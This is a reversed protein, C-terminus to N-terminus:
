AERRVSRQFSLYAFWIGGVALALTIAVSLPLPLATATGFALSRTADILYTTPNILVVVRMWAPLVDLPYLANSAFLVPLNFLFIMGHYGMISKSQAAMALAFGSFGLAFLVVLLLAVLWGLLTGELRAGMLVGVLLMIMAQFMAKTATSAANGLLISLRPVPSVLYEKMIGRLREVLLILGGGIAGSLASFAIIGPLIFSMYDSGGVDGVIGRMGVGFLVVWLVSQLILGFTQETSKWFLHMHKAWIVYTAHLSNSLTAYM